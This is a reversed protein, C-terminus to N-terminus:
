PLRPDRSRTNDFYDIPPAHGLPDHDYGLAQTDLWVSAFQYTFLSGSWTRVFPGNKRDRRTAFFVSPDVRRRSDPAAIALLSILLSEDTYFDLTAGVEREEDPVGDGPVVVIKSAYQGLKDADTIAFRGFLSGRNDRYEAPKWGLYFQNTLRDLMFPWDVRAHIADARRRIEEELENSRDFYQRACIVGCIAIATDITSLEVTNLSEHINPTAAQDFNQKRRGDVGLFHYFFGKHGITGVREAGQPAEHLLKLLERVRGASQERTLYGREAGITYATLQFGAGGVTLLDPFTSRDRIMGGAGPERSAFDLFYLFSMARVDELLARSYEPKGCARDLDPYEGDRDVLAVNDVLLTGSAPNQVIPDTAQASQGLVGGSQGADGGAQREVSFSIKKLRGLDLSGGASPWEGSVLPLALTQWRDAALLARRSGVHGADDTLDIRLAIAARPKIDFRLEEVSRGAFLRASSAGFVNNVDLSYGRLPTLHRPEKGDFSTKVETPGFLTCGVGVWGTEGMPQTFDWSLELSGGPAGSSESNWSIAGLGAHSETLTCAGGLYNIGMQGPTIDNDFDDIVFTQGTKAPLPLQAPGLLPDAASALRAIAVTALALSILSFGMHARFSLWRIITPRRPMTLLGSRMRM